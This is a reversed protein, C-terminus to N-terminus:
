KRKWDPPDRWPSRGLRKNRGYWRAFDAVYRLPKKRKYPQLLRHHSLHLRGTWRPKNDQGLVTLGMGEFHKRANPRKPDGHELEYTKEEAYCGFCGDSIKSCGHVANWTWDTWKIGTM